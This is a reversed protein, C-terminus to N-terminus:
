LKVGVLMKDLQKIPLSSKWGSNPFRAQAGAGFERKPSSRLGSVLSHRFDLRSLLHRCASESDMNAVSKMEFTGSKERIFIFNGQGSLNCFTLYLLM